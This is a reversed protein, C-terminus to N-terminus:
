SAVAVAAALRGGQETEPEEGKALVRVADVVFDPFHEERLRKVTISTRVPMECLMAVMVAWPDGEVAEARARVRAIEHRPYALNVLRAAQKLLCEVCSAAPNERDLDLGEVRRMEGWPQLAEGCLAMHARGIPWLHKASDNHTANYVVQVDMLRM